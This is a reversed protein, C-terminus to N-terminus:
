INDENIFCAKIEELDDKYFDLNPAYKKFYKIFDEWLNLKNLEGVSDKLNHLFCDFLYDVFYFPKRKFFSSELCERSCFSIIGSYSILRNGKLLNTMSGEFIIWGDPPIFREKVSDITLENRCEIGSYFDSGDCKLVLM